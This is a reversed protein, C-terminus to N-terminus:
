TPLYFGAVREQLVENAKTKSSLFKRKETGHLSVKQAEEGEARGAEGVPLKPPSYQHACRGMDKM